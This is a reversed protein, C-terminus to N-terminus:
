PIKPSIRTDSFPHSPKHRRPSSVLLPTLSASRLKSCPTDVKPAGGFGGQESDFNAELSSVLKESLLVVDQDADRVPATRADTIERLQSM